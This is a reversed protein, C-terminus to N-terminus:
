IYIGPKLTYTNKKQHFIPIIYLDRWENQNRFITITTHNISKTQKGYDILM